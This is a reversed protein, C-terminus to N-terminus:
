SKIVNNSENIYELCGCYISFAIENQYKETKLKTLEAQNSIFGCEVIVSPRKCNHLLYISETASKNERSNDPQLMGIVSSRISEALVESDPNNVSYFIQTGSYKEQEFKNQHISIVISNADNNFIELRNHMDSMKKEKITECGEDYIAIDSNRTMVTKFGGNKFLLNLQQAIKLNIDKENTGDDAVAGGDEGGHGADIIITPFISQTISTEIAVSCGFLLLASILTLSLFVSIFKVLETKSLVM